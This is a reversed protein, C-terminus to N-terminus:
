LPGPRAATVPRGDRTARTEPHEDGLVRRQIEYVARREPEGADGRACRLLTLNSRTALTDPHEDGLLRQEVEYVERYAAEAADLRGRAHLVMALNHRTALTHRYDPGMITRQIDYVIRYENEAEDLRDTDQLLRALNHRTALTHRHEPGAGPIRCRAEYVQQYEAQADAYRGCAHWVMARYHRTRLTEAHEDGLVRRRAEYIRDYAAEAEAYRGRAHLVVARYHRSSLTAPHDDGLVRRAARLADRLEADAADYLGRAHMSRASVNAAHIAAAVLDPPPRHRAALTRAVHFAHPALAQWYPWNTVDDPPGARDVAWHLLAVAYALDGEREGLERRTTDRVLPHLRILDVGGDDRFLDILQLGALNRLLDDRAFSGMLDLPAIDAALRSVLFAYSPVPADAFHCLLRLLEPAGDLSRRDLLDLSLNWTQQIASGGGDADDLVNLWRADDVAAAYAAYTAPVEPDAYTATSTRALYGGALKLAVPLRGLRDALRTADAPPGAAPGAHDVLVQAADAETLSGVPHSTCWAGWGRAERSTVVVAGRPGPHPRIWGRGDALVGTGAALLSPDDANDVILLWPGPHEALHRWLADAPHGHDLEADSVGVQWAVARMGEALGPADTGSVWWVTIGQERAHHALELAISTKGCGSLGHLVRVRSGIGALADRLDALLDAHGRLPLAPVRRGYPPGVPGAVATRRAAVARDTRAADSDAARDQNAQDGVAVFAVKADDQALVNVVVYQPAPGTV